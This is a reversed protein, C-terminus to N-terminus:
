YPQNVPNVLLETTRAPYKSQMRRDCASQEGSYEAIGSTRTTGFSGKM